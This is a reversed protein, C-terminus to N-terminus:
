ASAVEVRQVDAALRRNFVQTLGNDPRFAVYRDGEGPGDSIVLEGEAGNVSVRDGVAVGALLPCTPVRGLSPNPRQNIRQCFLRYNAEKHREVASWIQDVLQEYRGQTHPGHERRLERILVEIHTLFNSLRYIVQAKTSVTEDWHLNPPGDLLKAIALLEDACHEPVRIAKTPGNWPSKRPM